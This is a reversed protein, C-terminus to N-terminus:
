IGTEDVRVGESELPKVIQAKDIVDLVKQVQNENVVCGGDCGMDNAMSNTYLACRIGETLGNEDILIM